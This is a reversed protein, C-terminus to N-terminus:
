GAAGLRALVHRRVGDDAPAKGGDHAGGERELEAALRAREKAGLGGLKRRADASRLVFPKDVM